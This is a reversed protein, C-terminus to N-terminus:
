GKYKENKKEVRKHLRKEMYKGLLWFITIGIAVIVSKVPNQAFSFISDGIYSVTFIMVAKGLFVALIFQYLNVKSIAVVLNIVASPSFPFCLLLFLPGFGHRELWNMVKVVQKNKRVWRFLRVDKFHRVILFVVISGTSAGIWSLLFGELLGYAAANTMVFVVLPLFPLFAELFPLLLGPIPGLSEYSTLLFNVLSDYDNAEILEKIQEVDINDINSINYTLM